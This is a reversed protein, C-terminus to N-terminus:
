VVAPSGSLDETDDSGFANKFRRTLELQETATKIHQEMLAIITDLLEEDALDFGTYEQMSFFNPYMFHGSYDTDEFVQVDNRDLGIEFLLANVQERM